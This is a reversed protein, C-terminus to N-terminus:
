VVQKCQAGLTVSSKVIPEKGEFDYGNSSEVQQNSERAPFAPHRLLAV